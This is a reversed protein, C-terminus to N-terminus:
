NSPAIDFHYWKVDKEVFHELFAAASGSGGFPAKGSNRIDGQDSIINDRMYQTIPLHWIEEHSMKGLKVMDGVTELQNTFVGQM